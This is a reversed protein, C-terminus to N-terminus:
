EAAAETARVARFALPLGHLPRLTIAM